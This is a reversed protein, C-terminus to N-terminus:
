SYPGCLALDQCCSLFVMFTSIFRAKDGESLAAYDRLGNTIIRSLEAESALMRYWVAFNEHVSQAAASQVANTNTRIQRALYVLTAIVGVAALAEAIAGIAEWDM